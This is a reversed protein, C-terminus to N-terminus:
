KTFFGAYAIGISIAPENNYFSKLLGISYEGKVVIEDIPYYNIGAAVYGKSCLWQLMGADGSKDGSTFGGAHLYVVLGYTEKADDAPLYLDFKNAEGEGYSLDTYMTGVSDDWRVSYKDGLPNWTMKFAASAVFTALFAGVYILGWMLRGKKRVKTKSM